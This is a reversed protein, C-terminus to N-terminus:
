AFWVSKINTFEYLGFHSLERGYGSRKVGGFPLRPDSKVFENVFVTGVELRRAVEAARESDGTWVSGGLGYISMNALRVAEDLDEFPVIPAVPGFTEESFVPMDPTVDTLVTPRYYFGNSNYQEGGCCLDAGSARSEAVQRHVNDLIDDRALPAVQTEIDLPHGVRLSTFQESFSEVFANFVSHHVLFRKAAICSQGSNIMRSKVAADVAHQIDADGFVIFPDSGGLELVSKKIERGARSAVASGAEDSGTLTVARIEPRTLLEDVRQESIILAQLLHEPLGAEVMLEEIALSCGSVNPAHKLLVANGAMIAPMAFRFVQWFPFNWPMVALVVGLPDFRVYSEEAETEIHHLSLAEPGEEAVHRALWACKRIEGRSEEIRKGMETTILSAYEDVGDELLAAVRRLAASREGLRSRSWGRFAAEGSEIIGEVETITQEPYDRIM